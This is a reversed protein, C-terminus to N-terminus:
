AMDRLPVAAHGGEVVGHEVAPAGVRDCEDFRHQTIGLSALREHQELGLAM